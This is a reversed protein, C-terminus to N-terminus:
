FTITLKDGPYFEKYDDAFSFPETGTYFVRDGASLDSCLCVFSGDDAKFWIHSYALYAVPKRDDDKTEFEFKM